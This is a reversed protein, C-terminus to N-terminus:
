VECLKRFREWADAWGDSNKPHFETIPESRRVVERIEHLSSIDGAAMAQVLVNGLATAEVPGAIVPVGCADAAFQNLLANQAGGGVVHVVKVAVGTLEELWGLVM